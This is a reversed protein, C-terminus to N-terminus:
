YKLFIINIVFYHMSLISHKSFIYFLNDTIEGGMTVTLRKTAISLLFIFILYVNM